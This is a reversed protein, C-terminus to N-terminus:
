EASYYLQDGSASRGAKKRQGLVGREIKPRGTFLSREYKPQGLLGVSPTWGFAGRKHVRGDKDVRKRM